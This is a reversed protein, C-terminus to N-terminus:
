MFSSFFNSYFIFNHFKVSNNEHLLKSVEATDGSFHAM